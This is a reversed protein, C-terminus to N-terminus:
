RRRQNKYHWVLQNNKIISILISNLFTLYVSDKVAYQKLVWYAACYKRFQPLASTSMIHMCVYNYRTIQVMNLVASSLQSVSLSVVKQERFTHAKKEGATYGRFLIRPAVSPIRELGGLHQHPIFLSCASRHGLLGSGLWLARGGELPKCQQALAQGFSSKKYTINCKVHM